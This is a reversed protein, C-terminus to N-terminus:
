NKKPKSQPKKPASAAKPKKTQKVGVATSVGKMTGKATDSVGKVVGKAVIVTGKKVDGVIPVKDIAKDVTNITKTVTKILDDLTPLSITSKAAPKKPM